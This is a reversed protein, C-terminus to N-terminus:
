VVEIVFSSRLNDAAITSSQKSAFMLPYRTNLYDNTMTLRGDSTILRYGNSIKGGFSISGGKEVLEFSYFIYYNPTGGTPVPPKTTKTNNCNGGNIRLSSRSSTGGFGSGRSPPISVMKQTNSGVSRYFLVYSGGGSVSKNQCLVWHTNIDNKDGAFLLITDSQGPDRENPPLFDNPILYSNNILSRIQIITGDTFPAYPPIGIDFQGLLYLTAALGIVIIIIIIIGKFDFM